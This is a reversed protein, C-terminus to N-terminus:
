EESSEEWEKEADSKPVKVKALDKGKTKKIFKDIDEWSARMLYVLYRVGEYCEISDRNEFLDNYGEGEYLLNDQLKEFTEDDPDVLAEWISADTKYISPYNGEVEVISLFISNGSEPKLETEGVFVPIDPGGSVQEIRANVIKMKEM